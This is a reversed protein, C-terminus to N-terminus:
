VVEVLPKLTYLSVALLRALEPGEVWQAQGTGPNYELRSRCCFFVMLLTLIPFVVPSHDQIFFWRGRPGLQAEELFSVWYAIVAWLVGLIWDLTTPATQQGGYATVAKYVGLGLLLTTNLLRWLTIKIKPDEPAPQAPHLLSEEATSGHNDGGFHGEEMLAASNFADTAIEPQLEEMQLPTSFRKALCRHSPAFVLYSIQRGHRSSGPDLGPCAWSLTFLWVPGVWLGHWNVWSGDQNMVLISSWCLTVVSLVGFITLVPFVVASHDQIFFWRERPGFQAEELFSVWYAIVAWLVGLIWDLTTPATQQGRYAAVAKCIGLVLILVTNLLASDPLGESEEHNIDTRNSGARTAGSPAHGEEVIPASNFIGASDNTPDATSEGSPALGKGIIAGSNSVLYDENHGDGTSDGFGKEMEALNFPSVLNVLQLVDTTTERSM